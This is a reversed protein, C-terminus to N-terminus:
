YDPSQMTRRERLINSIVEIQRLNYPLEQTYGSSSERAGITEQVVMHSDGTTFNLQGTLDIVNGTPDVATVENVKGYVIDGSSLEITVHGNEIHATLGSIAAQNQETAMTVDSRSRSAKVNAISFIEFGSPSIGVTMLDLESVIDIGVRPNGTAPDNYIQTLTIDEYLDGRMHVSRLTTLGSTEAGEQKRVFALWEGVVGKFQEPTRASLWDQSSLIGAAELEAAKNVLDVHAESATRGSQRIELIQDELSKGNPLNEKVTKLLRRIVKVPGRLGHDPNESLKVTIWRLIERQALNNTIDFDAFLTVIRSDAPDFEVEQRAPFPSPRELFTLTELGEFEATLMRLGTDPDTRKTVTAGSDRLANEVNGTNGSHYTYHGGEGAFRLGVEDPFLGLERTLLEANNGLIGRVGRFENRIVDIDIVGENQVRRIFENLDNDLERARTNLEQVEPSQTQARRARLNNFDSELQVRRYEIEAFREGYNRLFTNMESSEPRNRNASLWRGMIGTGVAIGLLMIINQATMMNIEEESPWRGNSTRFRLIGYYHLVPYSATLHVPGQIAAQTSSSLGTRRIGARVTTSVRRLISFLGINWALDRWFNDEEPSIPLLTSTLSHSVATFALSEIAISGATALLSETGFAGTVAGGIGATAMAAILTVGMGTLLHSVSIFAPLARYFTQINEDNRFANLAAKLAEVDGNDAHQKIKRIRGIIRGVALYGDPILITNSSMAEFANLAVHWHRVLEISGELLDKKHLFDQQKQVLDPDDNKRAEALRDAEGVISALDTRLQQIWTAIERFGANLMPNASRREELLTLEFESVARPLVAAEREAKNFKQYLENTLLHQFAEIYNNRIRQYLTLYGERGVEYNAEDNISATQQDLLRLNREIRAIITQSIAVSTSYEIADLPGINTSISAVRGKILTIASKITEDESYREEIRLVIGSIIRLKEQIQFLNLPEHNLKQGMQDPETGAGSLLETARSIGKKIGKAESYARQIRIAHLRDTASVFGGALVSYLKSLMDLGSATEGFERLQSDQANAAFARAVDDQNYGALANIVKTVFSYHSPSMWALEFLRQGLGNENLNGWSTHSSILDGEPSRQIQKNEGGQQVVHTLEHALLHKGSKSNVDYRGSNFYIDKGHTFAHAYLERNMQVASTDNHIRVGSFDAGFSSELPQRTHDPLPSGAGKTSALRSEISPLATQATDTDGKKQVKGEEECAACKRQIDEDPPPENSEFISKRQVPEELLNEGEEKKQVKEEEECGACKTQVLPTVTNALPNSKTQVTEPNSLRQVVRDAMADAEVEYRDGSQGVTLKTQVRAPQSFFPDAEGSKGFFAGEGGKGFFPTSQRATTASTKAEATRM